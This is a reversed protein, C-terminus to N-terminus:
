RRGPDRQSRFNPDRRDCMTLSLACAEKQGRSLSSPNSITIQEVHQDTFVL